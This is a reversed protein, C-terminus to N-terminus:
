LLAKQSHEADSMQVHVTAFDGSMRATTRLASAVWRCHARHATDPEFPFVEFGMQTVQSAVDEVSVGQGEAVLRGTHFSVLQWDYEGHAMEASQVAVFLRPHPNLVRRRKEHPRAWPVSRAGLLEWLATAAPRVGFRVTGQVHPVPLPTLAVPRFRRTTCTAYPWLALVFQESDLSRYFVDRRHLGWGSSRRTRLVVRCDNRAAHPLKGLHDSGHRFAFATRCRRVTRSLM